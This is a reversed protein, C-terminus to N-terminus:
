ACPIHLYQFLFFSDNLTSKVLSSSSSASADREHLFQIIGDERTVMRSCEQKLEAGLKLELLKVKLAYYNTIRMFYLM